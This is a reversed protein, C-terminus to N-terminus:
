STVTHDHQSEPRRINDCSGRELGVEWSLFRSVLFAVVDLRLYNEDDEM